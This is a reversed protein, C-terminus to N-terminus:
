FKDQSTYYDGNRNWWSPFTRGNTSKVAVYIECM